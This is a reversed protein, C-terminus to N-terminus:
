IKGSGIKDTKTELESLGVSEIDTSKCYPCYSPDPGGGVSFTEQCDACLIPM